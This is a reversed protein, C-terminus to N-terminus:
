GRSSGVLTRGTRENTFSGNANAVYVDGGMSYRQGPSYSRGTHTGAFSIPAGSSGGSSGASYSGAGDVQIRLANPNPRQSVPTPMAFLSGLGGSKPMPFTPRQGMPTPMQVNVGSRLPRNRPLPPFGPVVSMASAVGVDPVAPPVVGTAALTTQPIEWTGAPLRDAVQPVRAPGPIVNPIAPLRPMPLSPKAFATSGLRQVTENGLRSQAVSDRSLAPGTPRPTSVPMPVSAVSRTSPPLGVGPANRAELARQLAPDAASAVHQMSTDVMSAQQARQELAQQLRPDVANVARQMSTSVMRPSAIQSPPLEPLRQPQATARLRPATAPGREQGAYTISATSMAPKQGAEAIRRELIAALNQDQGALSREITDAIGRDFILDKDTVPARPPAPPYIGAYLSATDQTVPALHRQAALMPPLPTPTVPDVRRPPVVDLATAVTNPIQGPPLPVGIANEPVQGSAYFRHGNITAVHDMQRAWSPMVDGSLFHDARPVPNPITGGRVGQIINEVKRRLAPDQQSKVAGSGPNTFGDFGSRIVQDMTQGRAAARQAIAWTAAIIGEDGEGGAEAIITNILDRSIEAM